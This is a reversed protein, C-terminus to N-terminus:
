WINWQQHKCNKCTWTGSKGTKRKDCFLCHYKGWGFLGERKARPLVKLAVEELEKKEAELSRIRLENQAM